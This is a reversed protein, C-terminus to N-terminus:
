ALMLLFGPDVIILLIKEFEVSELTMTVDSQKAMFSPTKERRGILNECGFVNM